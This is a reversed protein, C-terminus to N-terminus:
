ITWRKGLSPLEDTRRRLGEILGAYRGPRALGSPFTQPSMPWDAPPKQAGRAREPAPLPGSRHAGMKRAWDRVQVPRNAGRPNEAPGEVSPTVRPVGGGDAVRRVNEAITPNMKGLDGLVSKSATM